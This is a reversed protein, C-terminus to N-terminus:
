CCLRQHNISSLPSASSEEKTKGTNLSLNHSNCWTMLTEVEDRYASEDGNTILGVVTTDDAFKIIHNATCDHTLLTFLLPSLVCGQPSGTIVTTTTSTRSIIKVTQKRETLFDLVWNCTNTGVGLLQLKEVLQQPLITNFASSFDVLLIRAYTNKDELHTLTLHLLTSVADEASRNARYAFQLHDMSAPLNSKIHDKVVQEFCKMAVPTLAVPRYDNLCRPNSNKPVPVIIASKFCLPVVAQCLSTNFIDMFCLEKLCSRTRQRTRLGKLSKDEVLKIVRRVTNVERKM